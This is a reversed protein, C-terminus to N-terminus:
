KKSTRKEVKRGQNFGKFYAESEGTRTISIGLISSILIVLIFFILVITQNSLFPNSFLEADEYPTEVVLIWRKDPQSFNGLDITSYTLLWKNFSTKDFYDNRIYELKGESEDTLKNFKEKVANIVINSGTFPNEELFDLFNVGLLPTIHSYIISGSRDVLYIQSRDSIKLPNIYSDTLKLVLIATVLVGDFENNKYVPTSLTVVYEDKFAGLKAQISQGLFLEGQKANKAWVFYDRDALSINKEIDTVERNAVFIVKGETNVLMAEVIPTTQWDNIFDDLASQTQTNSGLRPIRSLILLSKGALDIFSHISAAGARTIVQERHLMQEAVERETIKGSYFYIVGGVILVISIFVLYILQKKYLTLTLFKKFM